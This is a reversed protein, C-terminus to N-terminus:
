AACPAGEYNRVPKSEVDSVKWRSGVRNVTLNQVYTRVVNKPTVDRGKKDIFKVASSDECATLQVQDERWGSSAVGRINTVGEARWGSDGIDSLVELVFRLYRGSATSTLEKTKVATGLQSQRDQEAMNDRYAAEAAEYDLRMQREIQSESPTTAAPTPSPTTTPAPAPTCAAALACCAVAAGVSVFGRRRLAV